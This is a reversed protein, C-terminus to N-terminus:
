NIYSTIDAEARLKQIHQNLLEQKELLVLYDKISNKAEEFSLHRPPTINIIQVLHYGLRTQVIKTTGPESSFVVEEYEPLLQGQQFDYLGCREVSVSDESYNTVLDCFNTGNYMAAIRKIEALKKAQNTNNAYILLQRTVARPITIFSQNHQEYYARIEAQSPPTINKTIDNIEEQLLLSNRINRRFAEISSGSTALNQELEQLTLGNNTLFANIANDVEEESISLGRKAADQLLLKNNIVLDLSEQLSTNTRMSVPINNYVAMVEELYVPEDNITALLNQSLVAKSTNINTSKNIICETSGTVPNIIFFVPEQMGPDNIQALYYEELSFGPCYASVEQSVARANDGSLRQISLVSDPHNAQYEKIMADLPTSRGLLSQTLWSIILLLVIIIVIYPLQKKSM